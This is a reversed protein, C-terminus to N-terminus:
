VPLMSKLDKGRWCVQCGIHTLIRCMYEVDAIRPCNKLVSVGPVLLAAAMIPLAANKSGQITVEGYLPTKGGIYVSEM